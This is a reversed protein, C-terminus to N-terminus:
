DVAYGLARLNELDADTQEQRIEVRDTRVRRRLEALTRQLERTLPESPLAVESGNDLRYVTAKWAGGTRTNVLKYGGSVIGIRPVRSGGLTALYPTSAGSPATAALLDRGRADPDPPVDALLRLLTPLLDISAVPDDRRTPQLQASRIMLPIRVLPESLYEGHAFWFDGEGLAEGHDATFVLTTPRYGVRADVGELLRGIESDLHHIEGDYGARYFAVDTRDDIHQYSPLAGLRSEGVQLPLERRGGPRSQERELFQARLGTPPTYPGHPDQYHVWLFVGPAPESLLTDLVGLADDTTPAATREPWQRVAERDPLEDDYADFGRALGAGARLVVNSVVAGTRWGRAQLETALTPVDEPVVSANSRVGVSEPYNGSLLATVAPLTVAAAAYASGFVVSEGAVRDLNPTLGAPGGYAGLRDARLTDVSVLLLLPPEAERWCGLASLAIVAVIALGM